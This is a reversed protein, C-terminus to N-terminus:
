QASRTLVGEYRTTHVVQQDRFTEMVLTVTLEDQSIRTAKARLLTPNGAVGIIFGNATVSGTLPLQSFTIQGSLSITSQALQLQVQAPGFIAAGQGARTCSPDNPRCGTLAMSGQWRGEYDPPIGGAFPADAFPPFREVGASPGTPMGGCGILGLTVVVLVGRASIATLTRM